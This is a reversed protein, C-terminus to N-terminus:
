GDSDPDADAASAMMRVIHIISQRSVPDAVRTFARVLRLADVLHTEDGADSHRMLRLVAAFDGHSGTM